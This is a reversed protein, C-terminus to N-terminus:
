ADADNWLLPFVLHEGEIGKLTVARPEGFVLDGRASAIERVLASVLIEGGHAHGAVRAAVMVHRGFIDGGEAIVEGTHVGVRIRVSGEADERAM